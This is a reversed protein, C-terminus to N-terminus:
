KVVMANDIHKNDPEIMCFLHDSVKLGSRYAHDGKIKRTLSGLLVSQAAMKYFKWFSSWLSKKIKCHIPVYLLSHNSNCTFMWFNNITCKAKLDYVMILYFEFLIATFIFFLSMRKSSFKFKFHYLKKIVMVLIAVLSGCVKFHISFFYTYM